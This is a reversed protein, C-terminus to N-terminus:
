RVYYSQEPGTLGRDADHSLLRMQTGGKYPTQCRGGRIASSVGRDPHGSANPAACSSFQGVNNNLNSDTNQVVYLGSERIMHREADTLYLCHVLLSSKLDLIGVDKFREIVRKNDIVLFFETYTFVLTLIVGAIACIIFIPLFTNLATWGLNRAVFSGWGFFSIISFTRVIWSYEFIPLFSWFGYRIGDRTRVNQGNRRRAVLQIIAGECFSPILLYLVGIVVAVIILPLTTSFNDRILGFVSRVVLSTFSQDWNEFLPSSLFAYYQYILYLIGALTTLVSPFFAYWFILKKNSQTFEWAESIIQRSKLSM